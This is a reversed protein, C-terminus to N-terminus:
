KVGKMLNEVPYAETTILQYETVVVSINSYGDSCNEYLHKAFAIASDLTKTINHNFTIDKNDIIDHAKVEYVKM